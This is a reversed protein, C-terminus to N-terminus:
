IMGKLEKEFEMAAKEEVAKIHPIAAVRGGNRSAHGYELLHNLQYHKANYVTNRKSRSDEYSNKDKWSRKYRGTRKPSTTKLEKATKKSVKDVTEKTKVTVENSYEGLATALEEALNNIKVGAM